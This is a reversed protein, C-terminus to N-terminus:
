PRSCSVVEATTQYRGSFLEWDHGGRALNGLGDLYREVWTVEDASGVLRCQTVITARLRQFHRIRDDFIRRVEDIAQQWALHDHHALIIVINHIDGCAQEKELSHLDNIFICADTIARQIERLHPTGLVHDPLEFQGTREILDMWVPMFCARRRVTLYEACSPVIRRRRNDAESLHADLYGRWSRLARIQWNSSMGRTHRAWADAWSTTFPNPAPPAFGAPQHTLETLQRCLPPVQAPDQSILRNVHDDFFASWSSMDLAIDLDAGTADPWAMAVLEAFLEALYRDAAEDDRILGHRRLWSLNALRARDTDPSIRSPFPIDLQVLPM